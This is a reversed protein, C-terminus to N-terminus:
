RIAGKLNRTMDFNVRDQQGAVAKGVANADASGQVTINTQQNVKQSNTAGQPLLPGPQQINTAGAQPAYPTGNSFHSYISAAWGGISSLINAFNQWNAISNKILSGLDGFLNEIDLKVRKFDLHFLDNFAGVVQFVIQFISDLTAKMGGLAETVANIVPIFPSWNFFSKGGEQFVKFDDYLALIALFGTLLMGLPTALFELNLLKWAAIVAIIKTSWGGTAEDLKAFFDWVRSLISFLTSGLQVTARFAKLIFTVFGELAAKIKPMNQYIKLRFIDMQKTLLPLFKAGVSKYIAELAFKTKALSYNFLISEKVVKVLDIGARSYAELMAHRLILMKNVAPAVLRLSYGMEEFGQSIGAISKFIGAAAVQITTYLATVKLAASAISKNFKSLSSEDVDFGLGVLFSKIVEGDM